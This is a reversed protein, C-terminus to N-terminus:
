VDKQTNQDYISSLCSSCINCINCISRKDDNVNDDQLSLSKKLFDPIQTSCKQLYKGINPHKSLMQVQIDKLVKTITDISNIKDINDDCEKKIIDNVLLCCDEVEPLTLVKTFTHFFYEIIKM